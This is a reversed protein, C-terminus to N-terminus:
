SGVDKKNRDSTYVFVLVICFLIVGVGMLLAVNLHSGDSVRSAMFDPAFVIMLIYGFYLGLTAIACAWATPTTSSAGEPTQGTM